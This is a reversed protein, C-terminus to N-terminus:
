YEYSVEIGLKKLREFYDPLSKRVAEAGRIKGGTKTLLVALAMVIRHDNHGDLIETPPKIGPSIRIENELIEATVGMKHLEAGMVQGRDSEKLRLRRTNTLKGGYNMAAVAMLVPGLDPCDSIDLKAYGERLRAFYRRYVKDGQPSGEELGEMRVGRIDNKGEVHRAFGRMSNKREAHGDFDAERKKMRDSIVQEPDEPRGSLIPGTMNLAAFYAANSYDGEVSLKQPQYRQGGRIRITYEDEWVTEVGFQELAQITMLIYSRSEVPPILKIVSDEELLPLAFLLGSIFQSSIHGPVPYTGAQLRGAVRVTHNGTETEEKEYLLGQKRCMEEYVDLPRHFLRESGTLEMEQGSMLCIPLLFRLASGSERCPLQAPHGPNRADIGRITVQKEEYHIEAGLAALCDLTALIDESDDVNSIVSVGESLGGCILLRHAMSKSPPAIMTGEARSPRITVIM